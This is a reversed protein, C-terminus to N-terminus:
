AVASRHQRFLLPVADRAPRPPSLLYGQIETCGEARVIELQEHTEVGEATTSIGLSRGLSVIARVIATSEPNASLEKVFSRDIKIKDFPFRRLYSLSSYGTGFDDMAIRVGLARLQHLIRVSAESEQMLVSETIELELRGPALGSSALASMVLQVLNRQRFQVASVNVSVRVDAPWRAAEACAERLVWEGLPVILGTDEAVPIFIGPSITGRSPHNWRVLAEFGVIRDRALDLLPQYHLEFEGAAMAERMDLELARRNQVEKDMASEFFRFTGRGDAKAKYLALDANKLLLDPDLGDAPALAIGISTGVNILQGDVMFSRGLAEVLRAALAAAAEPEGLGVQLIAFEDGGLRAVIDRARVAEVIRAAVEKLLVDGVSHGLTDNVAKFQDLDLCLVAATEGRDACRGLAGELRERFLVRNALGTLADHRAMHEIRREAQKRATVDTYTRVAGGTELPVTRIELVRGNPREREYCQHALAIGGAEVWKRFAEDANEFDGTDFQHRTVDHFHPRGALLDAPLDLLELARSNHVQVKLDADIMMIGQDMNELTAELVASKQTAQAEAQSRRRAERDLLAGFGVLIAVAVPLLSLSSLTDRWWPALVDDLALAASLVLPFEGLRRFAVIRPKGDITASGTTYIGSQQAAYPAQFLPLRDFRQGIRNEGNPRRALVVGNANFLTVAGGPGVDVREYVDRMVRADVAAVVIVDLGRGADRIRRSVGIIWTGHERDLVPDGVRLENAAIGVHAQLAAADLRELAAADAREGDILRGSRPDLTRLAVLRSGDSLAAKVLSSRSAGRAAAHEEAALRLLLDIEGFTRATHGRLVSALNEVQHSAADLVRERAQWSSWGLSAALALCVLAIGTWVTATFSSASRLRGPRTAQAASGVM